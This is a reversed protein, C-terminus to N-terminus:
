GLNNEIVKFTRNFSDMEYWNKADIGKRKGTLQIEGTIDKQGSKYCNKRDTKNFMEVSNSSLATVTSVQKTAWCLYEQGIALDEFKVDGQIWKDQKM